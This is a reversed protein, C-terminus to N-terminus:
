WPCFQGQVGPIKLGFGTSGKGPQHQKRPPPPGNFIGPQPRVQSQPGPVQVLTEHNEGEWCASATTSGPLLLLSCGKHLPGRRATLGPAMPTPDGQPDRWCQTVQMGGMDSVTSWPHGKNSGLASRALSRVSAFRLRCHWQPFGSSKRFSAPGKLSFLLRLTEKRTPSKWWPHGSCLLQRDRLIWPSRREM